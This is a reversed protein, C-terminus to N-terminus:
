ASPPLPCPPLTERLSTINIAASAHCPLVALVQCGSFKDSSQALFGGLLHAKWCADCNAAADDVCVSAPDACDACLYPQVLMLEVVMHRFVVDM